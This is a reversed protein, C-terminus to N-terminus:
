SFLQTMTSFFILHAKLILMASSVHWGPSLNAKCWFTKENRREESNFNQYGPIVTLYYIKIRDLTLFCFSIISFVVPSLNIPSSLKVLCSTAARGAGPAWNWRRPGSTIPPLLWESLAEQSRWLEQWEHHKCLCIFM